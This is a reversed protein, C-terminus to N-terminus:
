CIKLVNLMNNLKWCYCVLFLGCWSTMGSWFNPGLGSIEVKSFYCVFDLMCKGATGYDFGVQFANELRELVCLRGPYRGECGLGSSDFFLGLTQFGLGM